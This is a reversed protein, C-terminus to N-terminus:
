INVFRLNKRGFHKNNISNISNTSNTNVDDDSTLRSVSSGNRGHGGSVIGNTKQSGTFFISFNFQKEVHRFLIDFTIMQM